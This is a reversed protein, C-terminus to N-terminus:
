WMKSRVTFESISPDHNIDEIHYLPVNGYISAWWSFTSFPGFIYDCEALSYMDVVEREQSITHRFKAFQHSPIPEDSVLLFCAIKPVLMRSVHDMLRAYSEHEFYWRGDAAVRYDGRRIHVGVLVQGLSRSREVMTRVRMEYANAPRFYSRILPLYCSSETDVTELGSVFVYRSTRLALQFRDGDLDLREGLALNVSTCKRAPLHQSQALIELARIVNREMNRVRSSVILARRPPFTTIGMGAPVEFLDAYDCFAANIVRYGVKYANAILNAFAFLRNALRGYRSAVVVTALRDAERM